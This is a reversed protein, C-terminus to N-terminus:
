LAANGEPPATSLNVPVLVNSSYAAGTVASLRGTAEPARPPGFPVVAVAAPTLKSSEPAGFVPSENATLTSVCWVWFTRSVMLLNRVASFLGTSLSGTARCFKRAESSEAMPLMALAVLWTDDDILAM